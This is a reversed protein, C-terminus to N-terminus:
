GNGTGGSLASRARRIAAGELMRQDIAQRCSGHGNPHIDSLDAGRPFNFMVRNVNHNVVMQWNYNTGYHANLSSNLADLYDLRATDLSAKDIAERAEDRERTLRKVEAEATEARAALNTRAIETSIPTGGLALYESYVSWFCDKTENEAEEADSARAELREIQERKTEILSSREKMLSENAERLREIQAQASSHTVLATDYLRDVGGGVLGKQNARIPILGTGIWAVVELEDANPLTPNIM